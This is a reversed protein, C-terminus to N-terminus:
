CCFSCGTFFSAVPFGQFDILLVTFFVMLAFILEVERCYGTRVVKSYIKKKMLEGPSLSVSSWRKSVSVCSGVFASLM